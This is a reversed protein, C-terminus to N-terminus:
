RFILSYSNPYNYVGFKNPQSRYQKRLKINDFALWVLKAAVIVSRVKMLIAFFNTM